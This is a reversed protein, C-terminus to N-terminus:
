SEIGGGEFIKGGKLFGALTNMPPKLTEPMFKVQLSNFAYLAQGVNKECIPLRTGHTRMLSAIELTSEVPLTPPQLQSGACASYAGGAGVGGAAADRRQRYERIFEAQKFTVHMATRDKGSKCFVAAGGGLQRCLSSAEVLIKHDMKGASGLIHQHLKDLRPHVKSTAGSSSSSSITVQQQLPWVSYAYSNLLRFGTWNLQVLVDDDQVGVDDDEDDIMGAGVGASVSAAPAPTQNAADFPNNRNDSTFLSNKQEELQSLVSTGANAGWQRIDVGVEFLLPYLQVPVNGRLPPPVRQDYYSPIIGIHLVFQRTAYQGSTMLDIWRVYPSSPVPTRSSSELPQGDDRVLVVKVMRLMAIGVFADEIMGLEKGAASLLGEFSVLYGHQRWVEPWPSSGTRTRAPDSLSSLYTTAAIGLAQSFVNVRRTACIWTLHHLAEVSERLRTRLQQLGPHHAPLHTVPPNNGQSVSNQMRRDSFYQAVSNVLETQVQAVALALELRKIELRRLGGSVGGVPSVLPPGPGPGVGVAVGGSAGASPSFVNGFDRAHDAPAGCTTNYLAEEAPDVQLLLLLQQQQQCYATTVMTAVSSTHVNFPIGSLLVSSRSSSPRFPKPSKDQSPPLDDDDDNHLATTSGAAALAQRYARAREAMLSVEPERMTSIHRHLYGPTVFPGLTQLQHLQRQVAPDGAVLTPDVPDFDLFPRVGMGAGLGPGGSAPPALGVLSVLGHAAESPADGPGAAAVSVSPQHRIAKLAELRVAITGVAMGTRSDVLSYVCPRTAGDATGTGATLPSSAANSAAAAAAVIPELPVVAELQLHHHSVQERVSSVSHIPDFPNHQPVVVPVYHHNMSAASQGATTNVTKPIRQVVQIRISGLMYGLPLLNQHSEMQAQGGGYRALISPLISELRIQPTPGLQFPIPPPTAATGDTAGIWATPPVFEEELICNPRQWSASVIPPPPVSTTASPAAAAVLGADTLRIASVEGVFTFHDEPDEKQHRLEALLQNAHRLSVRCAQDALRSFASAIPLVLTSEVSREVAVVRSLTMGTANVSAASCSWSYAQDLPLHYLSSKTSAPDALSWGNGCLIPFKPDRTTVTFALCAGPPLASSFPQLPLPGIWHCFPGPLTSGGASSSASAVAFAAAPIVVQGLFFNRAKATQLLAAGSRIWLKVAISAVRVPVIIAPVAFGIVAAASDQATADDNYHRFAETRGLLEGSSADYFGVTYYDRASSRGQLHDAKIALTHIGRELQSAAGKVARKWLSTMTVGGRSRGRADFPSVDGNGSDVGGGDFYGGEDQELFSFPDDYEGSEVEGEEEEKYGQDRYKASDNTEVASSTTQTVASASASAALTAGRSQGKKGGAGGKSCKELLLAGVGGPICCNVATVFV